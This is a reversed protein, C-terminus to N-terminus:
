RWDVRDLFVTNLVTDCKLSAQLLKLGEIISIDLLRKEIGKPGKLNLGKVLATLSSLSLPEVSLDDHILYTGCVNGSSAEHDDEKKEELDPPAIHDIEVDMSMNCHPCVVHPDDSANLHYNPCTYLKRQVSEVVDSLLLPVDLLAKPRLLSDKKKQSYYEGNLNEVSRYLNGICGVMGIHSMKDLLGIVNAMPLCLLSSLFDVFDRGAEAYLIKRNNTDFIFDVSVKSKIAAM